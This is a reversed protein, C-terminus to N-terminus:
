NGALQHAEPFYMDKWSEPKTKLTGSKYMMSM